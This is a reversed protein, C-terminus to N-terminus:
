LRSRLQSMGASEMMSGTGMGGMGMGMGMGPGTQMSMGSGGLGMSMGMASGAGFSGPPGGIGGGLGGGGLGMGLNMGGTGDPDLIHPPIPWRDEAAAAASGDTPQAGAKRDALEKAAAINRARLMAKLHHAIEEESPESPEAPETSSIPKSAPVLASRAPQQSRKQASMENDSGEEQDEDADGRGLMQGATFLPHQQGKRAMRASRAVQDEFFEDLRESEASQISRTPASGCRDSPTGSLQQRKSNFNRIVGRLVERSEGYVGEDQWSEEFAREVLEILFAGSLGVELSGRAHSQLQRPSNIGSLIAVALTEIELLMLVSSHLTSGYGHLRIASELIPHLQALNRRLKSAQTTYISEWVATGRADRAADTNTDGCSPCVPPLTVALGPRSWTADRRSEEFLFSAAPEAFGNLSAPLPVRAERIASLAEIARPVGAFITLPGALAELVSREASALPVGIRAALSPLRMWDMRLAALENSAAKAAVGGLYLLWAHQAPTRPYGLPAAAAAPSPAADSSSM